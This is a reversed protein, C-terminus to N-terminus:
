SGNKTPKLNDVQNKFTKQSVSIQVNPKLFNKL